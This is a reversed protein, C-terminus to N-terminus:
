VTKHIVRQGSVAFDKKHLFNMFPCFFQELFRFFKFFNMGTAALIANVQDGHHGKLRNRSKRHEQKLHGIGPEAATRRKM